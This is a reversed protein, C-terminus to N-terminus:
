LLRSSVQVLLLNCSVFYILYHILLAIRLCELVLFCFLPFLLPEVNYVKYKYVCIIERDNFLADKSLDLSCHSSALVPGKFGQTHSQLNTHRLPIDVCNSLCPHLPITSIVPLLLILKNFNILLQYIYFIFYSPKVAAFFKNHLSPYGWM